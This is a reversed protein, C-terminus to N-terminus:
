WGGPPDLPPLDPLPPLSKLYEDMENPLRYRYPDTKTGRGLRVVKEEETARQLWGYLMSPSPPSQDPPWDALLERAM